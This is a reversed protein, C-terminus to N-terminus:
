AAKAGFEASGPLLPECGMSWRGIATAIRESAHGDGFPNARPKLLKPRDILRLALDVIRRPDRGALYVDDGLDDTRETTERVVLLPLGLTPAEEQIGGSDTILLSARRMLEVFPVYGMPERLGIREAGGLEDRMMELLAPNPHTVVTACIDARRRVLERLAACIARVPAGWSERRHLTVVVLKKCDNAAAVPVAGRGRAGIQMLADVGTNGTLAIRQPLIGEVLLAQRARDTPAFHLRSIAGIMKRNGEEPFPDALDGTRLGAEVHAVPIQGYFAALAGTFTTATDGQVIALDPKVEAIARKLSLLLHGSMEVLDRAGSPVQLAIDPKLGFGALTELTLREHQGSAILRVDYGAPNRRLAGVVPALKIAEPRTGVV